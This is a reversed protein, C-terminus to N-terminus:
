GPPGAWDSHPDSAPFSDMEEEDVHDPARGGAGDGLRDIAEVTLDSLSELLVHARALDEAPPRFDRNPVAVVRLGAAVAARIGNVSDEVAACHGPAVGLQRTAELYVDPHPKGRPVEESSVTVRFAARLGSLALVEDIVVRNASSALGLPWRSGTRAVAELAGPLLPLQRRYRDLLHGVVEEIIQDEGLPVGLDHRLYASWEVSSMGQMAATAQEPWRGGYRDVVQRRADDWLRESDILVGGLDFVVAEIVM